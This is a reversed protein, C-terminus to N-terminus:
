KASLSFECDASVTVFFPGLQGPEFTAPVITYVEEEGLPQLTFHQPTSVEHIPMFATGTWPKGEHNVGTPDRTVRTGAMLYFGMMTGVTDLKVARAWRDEPRSLTITVNAPGTHEEALLSLVFKPNRKWDANMHCGGGFTEAWAGPVTRTFRQPLEEMRVNYDSWVKLVFSGELDASLLTPSIIIGDECWATRMNPFLASATDRDSYESICCWDTKAVSLKRDVHMHARNGFDQAELAADRAGPAKKRHPSIPNGMFDTAKKAGRKGTMTRPNQSRSSSGSMTEAEKAGTERGMGTKDTRVVVAKITVGNKTSPVRVLYQPNNCWTPNDQKSGGKLKLPGGATSINGISSGNDVTWEGEFVKCHLEPLAEVKLNAKSFLRMTYPLEVGWERTHPVIIYSYKPSLKVSAKTVERRPMDGAYHGKSSDTLEDDACQEWVRSRLGQRQRLIVFNSFFHSPNGHKALRRDRQVLSVYVDADRKPGNPDVVIRYQPNNFWRSDGDEQVFLGRRKDPQVPQLVEM